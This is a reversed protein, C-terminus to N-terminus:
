KKKIKTKLFKYVAACSEAAARGARRLGGAAKVGLRRLLTWGQPAFRVLGLWVDLVLTTAGLALLALGFGMYSNHRVFITYGAVLCGYMILFQLVRLLLDSGATMRRRLAVGALAFGFCLVVAWFVEHVRSKPEIYKDELMTSLAYAHIYLGNMQPDVPTNHVDGPEHINGLLVVKGHLYERNARVERPALTLFETRKFNIQLPQTGGAPRIGCARALEAAFSYVTDGGAMVAPVFDRILARSDQARLNIFGERVAPLYPVFFSSVTGAFSGDAPDYDSAVTGVILDVCRAAAATLVSDGEPQGPQYFMVDLGIAQPGCSQVDGLVRAIQARNECCDLSVIVIRDDGIKDKSRASIANYIDSMQFDLNKEVPALFSLSSLPDYAVLGVGLFVLATVVLAHVVTRWGKRIATKKGAGDETEM